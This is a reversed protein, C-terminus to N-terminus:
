LCSTRRKPPAVDAVGLIRKNDRRAKAVNKAFAYHLGAEFHPSNADLIYVTKREGTASTVRKRSVSPPAKSPPCTKLHTFIVKAVPNSRM